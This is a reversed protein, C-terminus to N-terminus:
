ALATSWSGALLSWVCKYILFSSSQKVKKWPGWVINTPLIWLVFGHVTIRDPSIWTICKLEFGCCWESLWFLQKWYKQRACVCILWKLHIFVSKSLQLVDSLSGPVYSRTPSSFPEDIWYCNCNQHTLILIKAEFKATRCSLRKGPSFRVRTNYVFQVLAKGPSM